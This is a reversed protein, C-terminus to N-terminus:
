AGITNEEGLQAGDTVVSTNTDTRTSTTPTSDSSESTTPCGAHLPFLLVCSKSETM